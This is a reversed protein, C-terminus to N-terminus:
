FRGVYAIRFGEPSTGVAIAAGRGISWADYLNAAYLVAIGLSTIRVNRRSKEITKISEEAKVQGYLNSAAAMGLNGSALGILGIDTAQDLDKVARKYDGYSALFLWGVVLHGGLFGAGRTRHGSHMQGWGPLIASRWVLGDPPKNQIPVAAPAAAAFLRTVLGPLQVRLAGEDKGEISVVRDVSGTDVDILRATLRYGDDKREVRGALLKSADLLQGLSFIRKPDDMLGSQVVGFERTEGTLARDTVEYKGAQRLADALQMGLETSGGDVPLVAIRQALLGRTGLILICIALLRM